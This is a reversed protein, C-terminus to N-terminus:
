LNALLRVDDSCIGSVGQGLLHSAREAANVTWTIVRLDLQAAAAMFRADVLTWHPWVDRAGTRAASEQMVRIAHPLRIDLLLGRPIEPARQAARAISDHDFSHLACRRGHKRAVDIVSEEVARGKLEIYVTARDGVADLVEALTPIRQGDGLDLGALVAWPTGAISHGQADFDHHVLPVGDGSVHADLEIADAGHQLALLFGPLTNERLERPSGRHAVREFRLGNLM